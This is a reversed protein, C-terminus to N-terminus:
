RAHGRWPSEAPALGSADPLRSQTPRTREVARLAALVVGAVLTTQIAKGLGEGFALVGREFILPATTLALGTLALATRRSTLLVAVLVVALAMFAAGFVVGSWGSIVWGEAFPGEALAAGPDVNLSLRRVEDGWQAGALSKQTPLVFQPVLSTMWQGAAEAPRLWSSPGAYWADTSSQLADFRALLPLFPRLWLPYSAAYTEANQLRGSSVRVDQIFFFVLGAIVGVLIVRWSVGGRGVLRILMWLALALFPTKSETLISWALESVLLMGILTPRFPNETFLVVGGAAIAAIAGLTLTLNDHAALNTARFGWGLVFLVMLHSTRVSFRPLGAPARNKLAITAVAILLVYITIGVATPQLVTPVATLYGTNALRVDALPDGFQPVPQVLALVLPRAIYGLSWYGAQVMLLAGLVGGSRRGLFFLVVVDITLM